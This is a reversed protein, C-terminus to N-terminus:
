KRICCEGVLMETSFVSYIKRM